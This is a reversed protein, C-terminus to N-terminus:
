PIKPLLFEILDTAQLLYTTYGTDIKVVKTQGFGVKAGPAHHLDDLETEGTLVIARIIPHKREAATKGLVCSKTKQLWITQQSFTDLIETTTGWYKMGRIGRHRIYFQKQDEDWKIYNNGNSRLMLAFNRKDPMKVFLDISGFETEVDISLQIRDDFNTLLLEVIQTLREVRIVAETIRAKATSISLISRYDPELFTLLTYAIIAKFNSFASASEQM